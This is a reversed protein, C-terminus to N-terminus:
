DEKVFPLLAIIRSRKVALALRRQHKACNGTIRKPIMRGKETLYRGLKNIDKYDIDKVKETCFLCVKKKVYSRRPKRKFKEERM